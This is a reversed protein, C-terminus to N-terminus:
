KNNELLYMNLIFDGFSKYLQKLTELTSNYTDSGMESKLKVSQVEVAFTLEGLISLMDKFKSSYQRFISNAKIKPLLDALATIGWMADRANTDPQGETIEATNDSAPTDAPQSNGSMEDASYVQGARANNYAEVLQDVLDTDEGGRKAGEPDEVIQKLQGVTEEDFGLQQAAEPDLIAQAMDEVSPGGEETGGEGGGSAINTPDIGAEQLAQNIKDVDEPLLGFEQAAAQDGGLATQLSQLSDPDLGAAEPDQIAQVLQQLDDDSLGEVEEGGEAPTAESSNSAAEASSKVDDKTAKVLDEMSDIKEGLMKIQEETIQKKDGIRTDLDDLKTKFFDFMMKIQTSLSNEMKDTDRQTATDKAAEGNYPNEKLGMQFGNTDAVKNLAYFTDEKKVGISTLLAAAKTLSLHSAKSMEGELPKYEITLAGTKSNKRIFVVPINLDKLFTSTSKLFYPDYDFVDQFDYKDRLIVIEKAGTQIFRDQMTDYYKSDLFSIKKNITVLSMYEEKIKIVEDKIPNYWIGLVARDEPIPAKTDKRPVRFITYTIVDPSQKVKKLKFTYEHPLTVLKSIYLGDTIYFFKDLLNDKNAASVLDTLAKEVNNETFVTKIINKTQKKSALSALITSNDFISNLVEEAGNKSPMNSSLTPTNRFGRGPGVPISKNRNTIFINNNKNKAGKVLASVDTYKLAFNGSVNDIIVGYDKDNRLYKVIDDTTISNGEEGIQKVIDTIHIADVPTDSNILLTGEENFRSILQEKTQKLESVLTDPLDLVSALKTIFLGPKVKIPINAKTKNAKKTMVVKSYHAKKISLRKKAGPMIFPLLAPHKVAAAKLLGKYVKNTVNPILDTLLDRTLRSVKQYPISGSIVNTYMNQKDNDTNFAKREASTQNTNKVVTGTSDATQTARQISDYWEESFPVYIKLQPIYFTPVDLFSGESYIVPFQFTLGANDLTFEAICAAYGKTKDSDVLTIKVNQKIWPATSTIYSNANQVVVDSFKQNVDQGQDQEETLVAMKKLDM